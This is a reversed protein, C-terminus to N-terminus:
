ASRARPAAEAERMAALIRAAGQGDVLARGSLSMARRREPEALLRAALAAASGVPDHEQAVEAAGAAALALAGARQNDAVILVIMPVGVHALELSTTGGACIALDARTMFPALEQPAHFRICPSAARAGVAPSSDAGSVVDLEAELRRARLAQLLAAVTEGRDYGGLTVLVLPLLGRPAAAAARVARRLVVYDCGLLLRAAGGAGVRREAGANQNVVIDAGEGADAFDDFALRRAGSGLRHRYEATFAYGDLVLWDAAFARAAAATAAADGATGREAGIPMVALGAARWPAAAPADPATTLLRCAVGEGALHEALAYCRMVHGSGIEPGADARFAAARPM